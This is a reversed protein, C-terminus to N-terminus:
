RWAPTFLLRLSLPYAVRWVFATWERPYQGDRRSRALEWLARNTLARLPVDDGADADPHVPWILEETDVNFQGCAQVNVVFQRYGDDSTLCPGVVAARIFPVLGPDIRHGDALQGIADRIEMASFM